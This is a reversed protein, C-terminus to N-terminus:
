AIESIETVQEPVSAPTIDDASWLGEAYRVNGSGTVTVDSFGAARFKEAIMENDALREVFGLSITAAYRRGRKLTYSAV